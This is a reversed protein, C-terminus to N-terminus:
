AMSWQAAESERRNQLGKSIVSQGDVTIRDWRRMQDPVLNYNRNLLVKLLTSSKLAGVGVNFTWSVLADFQNQTLPVTVYRTIADEVNALNLALDADSQEQTIPYGPHVNHTNGVGDTLVGAVDYYPVLRAGGERETIAAIGAPSTNM